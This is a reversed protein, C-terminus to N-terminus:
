NFSHFIRDFLYCKFNVFRDLKRGLDGALGTFLKNFSHPFNLIELFIESVVQLSSGIDELFKGEM